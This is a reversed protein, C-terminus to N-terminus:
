QVNEYHTTNTPCPEDCVAKEAICDIELVADGECGPAGVVGNECIRRRYKKGIGCPAQCKSEGSFDTWKPLKTCTLTDKWVFPVPVLFDTIQIEYKVFARLGILIYSNRDVTSILPKKQDPNISPEEIEFMNSVHVCNENDLTFNFLIRVNDDKQEIIQFCDREEDTVLNDNFTCQGTTMDWRDNGILTRCNIIEEKVFRLQLENDVICPDKESDELIAECACNVDATLYETNGHHGKYYFDLRAQMLYGEFQYARYPPVTLASEAIYVGCNENIQFNFTTDIQSYNISGNCTNLTYDFFLELDEMLSPDVGPLRGSEVSISMVEDRNCKCESEFTVVDEPENYRSSGM